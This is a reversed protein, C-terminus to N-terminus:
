MKLLKLYGSLKDEEKGSSFKSLVAKVAPPPGNSMEEGEKVEMSFTGVRNYTMLETACEFLLRPGEVFDLLAEVAIVDEYDFILSGIFIDANKMANVFDPNTVDEETSGGVGVSAGTRIESDSFVQLNINKKMSPPLSSAANQYLEKNFSEFGALLVVNVSDKDHNNPNNNISDQVQQSPKEIESAVMFLSSLEYNKKPIPQKIHKCNSTRQISQRSNQINNRFPFSFAEAADKVIVTILIIFHFFSRCGHLPKCNMNLYEFM